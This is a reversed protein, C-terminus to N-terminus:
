AELEMEFWVAKGGPRPEIGWHTTLEAVVKLGRGSEADPGAGRPEPPKPNADTVCGRLCSGALSLDVAIEANGGYSVANAVLESLVLAPAFGRSAPYGWAYLRDRLFRRAGAPSTPLPPL